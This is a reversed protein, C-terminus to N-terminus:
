MLVAQPTLWLGVLITLLLVLTADTGTGGEGPIDILVRCDTFNAQSFAMQTAASLYVTGTATTASESAPPCLFISPNTLNVVTGSEADLFQGYTGDGTSCSCACCDSLNLSCGSSRIGGRGDGGEASSCLFFTCRTFYNTLDAGSSFQFYMAGGTSAANSINVFLCDVIVRCDGSL